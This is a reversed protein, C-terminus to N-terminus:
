GQSRSRRRREARDIKSLLRTMEETLAPDIKFLPMAGLSRRNAATGIQRRIEASLPNPREGESRTM